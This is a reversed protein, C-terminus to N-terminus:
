TNEWLDKNEDLLRNYIDAWDTNLIEKYRERTKMKHGVGQYMFGDFSSGNGENPVIGLKDENYEGGLEKCIQKRYEQDEVFKDYEIVTFFGFYKPEDIEAKIARYAKIKRAINVDWTDGKINLAKLSSALFNKFERIVIVRRAGDIDHQHLTEPLVNELNHIKVDPLWSEIMDAVFNHGSRSTALLALKM